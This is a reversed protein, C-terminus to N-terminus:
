APDNQMMTTENYKKVDIKYKQFASRMAKTWQLTGSPQLTAFPYLATRLQRLAPKYGERAQAFNVERKARYEIAHANRAYRSLAGAWIKIPNFPEGYLDRRTLSILIFKWTIIHLDAQGRPLLGGNAVAFLRYAKDKTHSNRHLLDFKRWVKGIVSCPAFHALSELERGCCRYRPNPADSNIRRVFFARHLVLKFHSAWDRPTLGTSSYLSRIVDWNMQGLIKDWSAVCTPQEEQQSRLLGTITRASLKNLPEQAEGLRWREPHPFTFEAVEKIGSGWWAVSFLTEGELIKHKNNTQQPRGTFDPEVEILVLKGDIETQRGFIYKDLM